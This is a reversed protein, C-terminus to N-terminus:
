DGFAKKIAQRATEGNDNLVLQDSVYPTNNYNKPDAYFKLAKLLEPASAILRAIEETEKREPDDPPLDCVNSDDSYRFCDAIFTHSHSPCVIEWVPYGEHDEDARYEWPLDIKSM